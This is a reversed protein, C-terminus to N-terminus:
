FTIGHGLSFTLDGYQIRVGIGIRSSVHMGQGIGIASASPTCPMVDAMDQKAIDVHRDQV